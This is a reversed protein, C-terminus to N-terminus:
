NWTVTYQLDDASGGFVYSFSLDKISRGALSPITIIEQHFSAGSKFWKVTIIINSATQNGFNIVTGKVNHTELSALRDDKLSASVYAKQLQSSSEQLRNISPQLTAYSVGTAIIAGLAVSIFIATLITKNNELYM